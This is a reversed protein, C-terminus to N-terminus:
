KREQMRATAPQYKKTIRRLEIRGAELAKYAGVYDAEKLKLMTMGIATETIQHHEELYKIDDRM